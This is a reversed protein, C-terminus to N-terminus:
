RAAARHALVHEVLTQVSAFIKKGEEANVNLMMGYRHHLAVVLELADLSDLGLGAGFLPASDDIQEPTMGDLNLTEIILVKLERRLEDM